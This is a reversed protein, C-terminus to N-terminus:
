TKNNTSADGNDLGNTTRSRQKPFTDFAEELVEVALQRGTPRLHSAHFVRHRVDRLFWWDDVFALLTESAGLLLTPRQVDAVLFHWFM